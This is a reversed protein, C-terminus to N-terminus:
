RRIAYEGGLSRYLQVIATTIGLRSRILELEAELVNKQATIVELYNAYGALYLERATIVAEALQSVEKQKLAYEKRRNGVAQMNTLVETYADILTQQYRLVMEKNEANSFAYQAKLNRRQFVPATLGGLLGYVGSGSKFLLGPTFANLGIYPSIVLSPLFAKRAAAVNEKAAQLLWEQQRIDPRHSLLSSPAGIAMRAAGTIDPLATDRFVPTPYRGAVANLQNEIAAREQLLNYEIAQTNLVQAAFQQVALETARGGEKQAKVIELGDHQLGINKRVIEIEADLALLRYYNETIFAVLNTAVFQRAERTALMEALAAQKLNKLKGWIDLEWNSRLGVFVDTTPSVPIRQDKNINPSLNTDFNGVGNLTHDGYREAGGSITAQVSPLLDGRRASLAAEAKLVRQWAIQMDANYLLASDILQHLKEDPFYKDFVLQASDNKQIFSDAAPYEAPLTRVVPNEPPATVKCATVTALLSFLLINLKISNRM